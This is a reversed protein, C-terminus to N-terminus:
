GHNRVVADYIAFLNRIHEEFPPMALSTEEVTLRTDQSIINDMVEALSHWDLPRYLFGNSGDKIIESFVSHAPAIVPTGYHLAERATFSFTEYCRSTIVLFDMSQYVQPKEKSNFVGIYNINSIENSSIQKRVLGFSGPGYIVLEARNSNITTFAKILDQIGKHPQISGIYGFRMRRTFNRTVNISPPLQLSLPLVVIKQINVGHQTLINMVFDSPVLIRAVSNLLEKAYRYRWTFFQYRKEKTFLIYLPLNKLNDKFSLNKKICSICKQGGGMDKCLAEDANYLHIRPCLIWFDHISIVVPVGSKCAIAIYSLPFGLIHQFHMIDPHYSHIISKFESEAARNFITNSALVPFRNSTSVRYTQPITSINEFRSIPVKASKSSPVLIKADCCENIHNFLASYYSLTGEIEPKWFRHATYLIKM